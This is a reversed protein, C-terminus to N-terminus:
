EEMSGYLLRLMATAGDTMRKEETHEALASRQHATNLGHSSQGLVTVKFMANVAAASVARSSARFM